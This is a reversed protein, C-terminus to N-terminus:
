KTQVPFTSSYTTATFSVAMSQAQITIVSASPLHEVYVQHLHLLQHESATQCVMGLHLIRLHSVKLLLYSLQQIIKYLQIVWLMHSFCSIAIEENDSKHHCSVILLQYFFSM